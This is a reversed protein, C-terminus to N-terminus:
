DVSGRLSHSVKLILVLDLRFKLGCEWAPLSLGNVASLSTCPFIEIWVGVCPTVLFSAEYKTFYEIEIWVGVCPTVSVSGTIHTPLVIEIWVGM